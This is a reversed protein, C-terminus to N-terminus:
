AGGAPRLSTHMLYVQYHDYVSMTFYVDPGDNWLPTIYPAYLQPYDASTVVVQPASWPGTLSDSLRLVVQGTPDVLYTMLWKRYYSSWQVSLEGVPPAAVEVAAAPDGTTWSTANWYQYAASDLVQDDRVRALILAGYRGGPIGFLYVYGGERVLSVQGFNSGGPWTAGPARTWTQGDDDSSAIGSHDLTWRGPSTWQRVAMYYLFLRRGVAVGYTPIVAAEGPNAPILEKAAGSAATIMGALQLGHDPRSATPDVWAMSNRRHGTHSMSFFPYAAPGGFTDGFVVLMRGDAVFMHGLDAGYVDWRTDTKNVSGPGTLQAVQYTDSPDVSLTPAPAVVPPQAEDDVPETL